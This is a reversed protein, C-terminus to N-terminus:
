EEHISVHALFLISNDKFNIKLLCIIFDFSRENKLTQLHFTERGLPYKPDFIENHTSTYYHINVIIDLMEKLRFLDEIPLGV